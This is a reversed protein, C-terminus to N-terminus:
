KLKKFVLEFNYYGLIPIKINRIAKLLKNEFLKRNKNKSRKIFFDIIPFWQLTKKNELLQFEKSSFKSLLQDDETYERLHTPDLVWKGGYRYFYWGYWHKFVTSIYIISGQHTVRSIASVMKVDDVHEIVQTSVFFDIIGSAITEITEANDVSTIIEPNIKKVLSIRKKSLDIAFVKRNKLYEGKNLAWLLSGDGCGCDLFTEFSSKELYRELLAPVSTNYFQPAVKSYNEIDM